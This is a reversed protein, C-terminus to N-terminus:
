EAEGADFTDFEFHTKGARYLQSKAPPLHSGTEHGALALIADPMREEVKDYMVMSAARRDRM